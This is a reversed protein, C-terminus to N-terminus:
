SLREATPVPCPLLPRASRVAGAFADRTATTPADAVIMSPIIVPIAQFAPRWATAAGRTAADVSDVEVTMAPGGCDVTSFCVREWTAATGAGVVTVGVRWVNLMVLLPPLLHRGFSTHPDHTGLGMEDRDPSIVPEEVVGPLSEQIEFGFPAAKERTRLHAPEVRLGPFLQGDRVIGDQQERGGDFGVM